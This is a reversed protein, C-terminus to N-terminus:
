NKGNEFRRKLNHKEPNKFGQGGFPRDKPDEIKFQSNVGSGM